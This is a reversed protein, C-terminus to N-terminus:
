LYNVILLSHTLGIFGFLLDVFVALFNIGDLILGDFGFNEFPFDLNLSQCILFEVIGIIYQLQLAGSSFFFNFFLIFGKCHNQMWIFAFIRSGFFGPMSNLLCLFSKTIWLFFLNVESDHSFCPLTSFKFSVPFIFLSSFTTLKGKGIASKLLLILLSALFYKFIQLILLIM